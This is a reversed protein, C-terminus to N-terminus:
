EIGEAWDQLKKWWPRDDRDSSPPGGKPQVTYTLSGLWTPIAVQMRYRLVQVQLPALRVYVEQRKTQM